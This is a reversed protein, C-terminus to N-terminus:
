AEAGRHLFVGLTEVLDKERFSSKVLYADAGASMARAKDADSGRTSLVVLPLNRTREDARLESILTFGDMVPMDLDTVVLDPIQDEIRTLADRGNVAELVRVGTARLIAVLTDRTLESDDVLLVTHLPGERVEAAPREFLSTSPAEGAARLLESPSLTVAVEGAELVATGVALRVGELFAGLQRQLASREGVFGDVGLALRHEEHEVVLVRRVDTSATRQPLALLRGLDALPVHDGDLTVAQGEGAQVLDQARVEFAGRVALAPLAFLATGLRVVFVNSIAVSVPVRLTFRAGQGPEGSVWVAGGLSEVNERVVDLGVGRGSIDTVQSRTSFGSVFLLALIEDRGLEAARAESLVGRRVAAKRVGDPDVGRGDDAVTIEVAGAHQRAVLRVWAVPDKGAARRDEPAEVGHDVANRVLHLLPEEIRDLVQKDVSLEGGEIEVRVEKGQERALDRIGRPFRSFLESLPLLRAQRVAEELSQAHIRDSFLDERWRSVLRAAQRAVEAPDEGRTWAGMLATLEALTAESRVQRLVLDATLRTLEALRELPVRVFTESRRQMLRRLAAERDPARTWVADQAERDAASAEPTAEPPDAAAPAGGAGADAQAAADPVPAERSPGPGPAADESPADGAGADGTSPDAREGARLAELFATVEAAHAAVAKEPEEIEERLLGLVLDLGALVLDAHASGLAFDQSKAALLLDETRHAVASIEAFGLMKAEGKLTHIERLVETGVSVDGPSRELALLGDNLRDVREVAVVRFKAVLAKMADERGAMM